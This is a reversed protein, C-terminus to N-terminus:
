RGKESFLENLEEVEKEVELRPFLSQGKHVKTNEGILGFSKISEWTTLNEDVIGLQAYIKRATDNMVPNILTAITRISECLNYLVTDLVDKKLKM